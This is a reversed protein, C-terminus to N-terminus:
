VVVLTPRFFADLANDFAGFAKGLFGDAANDTVLVKLFLALSLLVFGLGLTVGGLLFGFSLCSAGAGLRGFLALLGVLVLYSSSLPGTRLPDPGQRTVGARIAM